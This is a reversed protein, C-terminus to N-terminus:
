LFCFQLYNKNENLFNYNSIYVFFRWLYIFEYVFTSGILFSGTFLVEAIRCLISNICISILEGSPQGTISFPWPRKAKGKCLMLYFSYMSIFNYCCLTGKGECDRPFAYSVIVESRESSFTCWLQLMQKACFNIFDTNFYNVLHNFHMIQIYRLYLFFNCASVKYNFWKM